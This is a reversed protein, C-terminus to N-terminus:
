VEHLVLSEDARLEHGNDVAEAPQCVTELVRYVKSVCVPFCLSNTDM